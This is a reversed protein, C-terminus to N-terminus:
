GPQGTSDVPPVGNGALKEAKARALGEALREAGRRHWPKTIMWCRVMRGDQYRTSDTWGAERLALGFRTKTVPKRGQHEMMSLYWNYITAATFVGWQLDGAIEVLDDEDVYPLPDPRGLARTM